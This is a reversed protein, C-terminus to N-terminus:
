PVVCDRGTEKRDQMLDLIKKTEQLPIYACQSWFRPVIFSLSYVAAVTSCAWSEKGRVHCCIVKVSMSLRGHVSRGLDIM